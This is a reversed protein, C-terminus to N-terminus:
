RAQHIRHKRQAQIVREIHRNRKAELMRAVRAAYANHKRLDAFVNTQPSPSAEGPSPESHHPMAAVKPGLTLSAMTLFRRM